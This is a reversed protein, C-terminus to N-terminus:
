RGRAESRLYVAALQASERPGALQGATFLEQATTADLRACIEGWAVDHPKVWQSFQPAGSMIRGAEAAGLLRAALQANGERAAVYATTECVGTLGRLNGIRQAFELGKLLNHRAGDLDGTLVQQLGVQVTAFMRMHCDHARDFTEAVERMAQLAQEHLEAHVHSFASGLCNFGEIWPQNLHKCLQTARAASIEAEAAHGDAIALWTQVGLAFAQEWVLGSVEAGSAARRALHMASELQRAHLLAIAYGNCLRTQEAPSCEEIL